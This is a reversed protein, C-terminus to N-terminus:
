PRVAVVAWVPGRRSRDARVVVDVFGHAECRVAFGDAQDRTWGHSALGDADPAIQREVALVRGGPALVRHVEALGGDLDRWHHVTAVSWVVTASGSALPLHEATGDVWTVRSRIGDALRAVRRMVSAPEVGVVTAGRRAADRAASGPGSGIDVVRDGPRLAVLEALLRADRRRSAALFTLALLAGSPGTFGPHDAHHNPPLTVTPLGSPDTNTTM